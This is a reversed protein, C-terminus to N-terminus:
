SGAATKAATLPQLEEEEVEVEVEAYCFDVHSINKFIFEGQDPGPTTLFDDTTVGNPQYDYTNGGDEGDMVLVFM